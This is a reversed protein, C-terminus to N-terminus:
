SLFIFRFSLFCTNVIFPTFLFVFLAIVTGLTITLVIILAYLYEDTTELIHILSRQIYPSTNLPLFLVAYSDWLLM